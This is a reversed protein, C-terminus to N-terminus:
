APAKESGSMPAVDHEDTVLNYATAVAGLTLGTAVIVYMLQTVALYPWVSILAALLFPFWGIGLIALINSYAFRHACAITREFPIKM